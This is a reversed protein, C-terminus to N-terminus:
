IQLVLGVSRIVLVLHMQQVKGETAEGEKHGSEFENGDSSNCTTQTESCIYTNIYKIYIKQLAKSGGEGTGRGRGRGEKEGKQKQPQKENQKRENNKKEKEGQSGM